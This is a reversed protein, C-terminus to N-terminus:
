EYLTFLHFVYIYFRQKLYDDKLIPWCYFGNKVSLPEAAVHSGEILVDFAAVRLYFIDAGEVVIHEYRRYTPVSRLASLRM